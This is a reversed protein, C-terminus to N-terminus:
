FGRSCFLEVINPTVFAARFKGKRANLKLFTDILDTVTDARDLAEIIM